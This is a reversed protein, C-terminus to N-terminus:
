GVLAPIVHEILMPSLRPAHVADPTLPLWRLEEIEASATPEGVLPATFVDSTILM